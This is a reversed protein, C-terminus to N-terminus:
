RGEENQMSVIAAECYDRFQKTKEIISNEYYPFRSYELLDRMSTINNKELFYKAKVKNWKFKSSIYNDVIDLRLSRESHQQLKM